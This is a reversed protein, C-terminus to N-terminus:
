HPLYLDLHLLLLFAAVSSCDSNFSGIAVSGHSLSDIALSGSSFAAEAHNM